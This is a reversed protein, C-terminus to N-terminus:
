KSSRCCGVVAELLLLLVLVLGVAVVVVNVVLPRTVIAAAVVALHGRCCSVLMRGDYVFIM